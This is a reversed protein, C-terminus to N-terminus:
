AEYQRLPSAFTDSDTYSITGIRTTYFHSVHLTCRFTTVVELKWTRLANHISSCNGHFFLTWAVVTLHGGHYTPSRGNLACKNQSPEFDALHKGNNKICTSGCMQNKVNFDCAPNHPALNKWCIQGLRGEDFIIHPPNYAAM